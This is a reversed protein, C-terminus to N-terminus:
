MDPTYYRAGIEWCGGERFVLDNRVSCQRSSGPAASLTWNQGPASANCPSLSLVGVAARAAPPSRPAAQWLRGGELVWAQGPCESCGELALAGGAAALCLPAAVAPPRWAVRRTAADYSWHRQPPGGAECAGAWPFLPESAPHPSWRRLLAGVSGADAQNVRIAEENTLVDWNALLGAEDLLDFSLILPSSM